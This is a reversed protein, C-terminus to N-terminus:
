QQALWVLAALAATAAALAIWLRATSTESFGWLLVALYVIFGLMAALVVAESRALGARALVLGAAAVAAASLVYGGGVAGAVHAGLRAARVFRHRHASRM